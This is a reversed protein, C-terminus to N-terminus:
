SQVSVLRSSKVGEDFLYQHVYYPVTMSLYSYLKSIIEFELGAVKVAMM